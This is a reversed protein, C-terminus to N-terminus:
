QVGVQKIEIQAFHLTLGQGSWRRKLPNAMQCFFLLNGPVLRVTGAAHVDVATKGCRSGPHMMGDHETVLKEERETVWFGGPSTVAPLIDDRESESGKGSVSRGIM